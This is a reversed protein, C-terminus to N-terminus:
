IIVCIIAHLSISKGNYLYLVAPKILKHYLWALPLLWGRWLNLCSPQSKLKRSFYVAYFFADRRSSKEKQKSHISRLVPIGITFPICFLMRHPIRFFSRLSPSLVSIFIKKQPLDKLQKRWRSIKWYSFVGSNVTSYIIPPMNEKLEAAKESAFPAFACFSFDKKKSSLTTYYPFM